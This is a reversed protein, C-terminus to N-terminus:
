TSISPGTGTFTGRGLGQGEQVRVAGGQVNSAGGGGDEARATDGEGLDGSM